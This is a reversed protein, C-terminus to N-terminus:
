YGFSLVSMGDGLRAGGSVRLPVRAIHSARQYSM